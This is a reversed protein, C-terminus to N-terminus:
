KGGGFPKEAKKEFWGVWGGMFFRERQSIKWLLAQRDSSNTCFSM